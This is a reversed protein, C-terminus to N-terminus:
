PVTASWESTNGTEFGDAFIVPEGLIVVTGADKNATYVRPTAGDTAIGWVGSDVVISGLITNTVANILYVRNSEPEGVYVLRNIPDVAISGVEIPMPITTVVTNTTGDIVTVQEDWDGVYVLHHVSDVAIDTGGLTLRTIETNTIRDFVGVRGGVYTSSIYIRDLVEDVAIYKNNGWPIDVWPLLTDTSGDIPTYRSGSVTYIRNTTPDVTLDDAWHDLVKVVQDTDGNIVTLKGPSGDHAVYVKNTVPNVVVASPESEVPIRLKFGAPREALAYVEGAEDETGRCVAYVKGSNGNAAVAWPYVGLSEVQVLGFDTTRYQRLTGNSCAVFFMDEDPAVAIDQPDVMTGIDIYDIVTNTALDMVIIGYYYIVYLRNDETDITMRSPDLTAHIQSSYSRTSGVFVAVKDNVYDLLYLRDTAPNVAIDGHYISFGEFQGVANTDGDIISVTADLWLMVFIENNIEDVAIRGPRGDVTVTDIVAHSSADIITVTTDPDGSTGQNSVYVRHTTQNVAVAIPERGVPITALLNWDAADVVSVTNDGANAVFAKQLDRDVAVSASFSGVDVSWVVDGSTEAISLTDSSRNAIFLQSGDCAIARPYRANGNPPHLVFRGMIGLDAIDPPAAIALVGLAMLISCGAIRGNM